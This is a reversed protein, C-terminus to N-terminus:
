PEGHVLPHRGAGRALTRSPERASAWRPDSAQVGGASSWDRRRDGVNPDLTWRKNEGAAQRDPVGPKSIRELEHQRINRSSTVCGHWMREAQTGDNLNQTALSAHSHDLGWDSMRPSSSKCGRGPWELAM